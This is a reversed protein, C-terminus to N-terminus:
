FGSWPNLNVVRALSQFPKSCQQHYMGTLGRTGDPDTNFDIRLAPQGDWILQRCAM